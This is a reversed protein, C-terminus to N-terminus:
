YMIEEAMDKKVKNVVKHKKVFNCNKIIYLEEQYDALKKFTEVINKYAQQNDQAFVTKLANIMLEYNNERINIQKTLDETNLKQTNIYIRASIYKKFLSFIYDPSDKGNKALVSKITNSAYDIEQNLYYIIMEINKM